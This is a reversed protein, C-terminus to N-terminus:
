QVQKFYRSATGTDAHGRVTGDTTASELLAMGGYLNKGTPQRVSVTNTGSQRDLEAVPCDPVCVWAAVQECGNTDRYNYHVQAGHGLGYVAGQKSINMAATGGRKDDVQKTGACSCGARDLIM